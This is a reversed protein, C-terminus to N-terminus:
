DETLGKINLSIGEVDVEIDIGYEVINWLEVDNSIVHNNRKAELSNHKFLVAAHYNKGSTRPKDNYSM